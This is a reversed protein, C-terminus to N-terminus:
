CIEFCTARLDLLFARSLRETWSGLEVIKKLWDESDKFQITTSTWHM